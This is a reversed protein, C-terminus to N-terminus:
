NELLEIINNVVNHNIKYVMERGNTTKNAYHAKNNIVELIGKKLEDSNNQVVLGFEGNNLIVSAGTDTALVPTDLILAELVVTPYGEVRSSSVFFESKKIYKYPNTNFPIFIVHDELNMSKALEKLEIELKGSGILVLKIDTIKKENRLEYYIKILRDYGKEYSLRGVSCIYKFDLDIGERSLEIVRDINLANRIVHLNKENNINNFYEKYGERSLDSVFITKDIESYTNIEEEKNRFYSKCYNFKSLDTHIWGIKQRSSQSVFKIPFGELFAIEIDFTEKLIINLFRRMSQPSILKLVGTILKIKIKPFFKKNSLDTNILKIHKITGDVQDDLVGSGITFLTISYKFHYDKNILNILDVLVREAGGGGLYPVVFLIKKM